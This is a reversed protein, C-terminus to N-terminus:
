VSISIPFSQRVIKVFSNGVNTQVNHSFPQDYWTTNRERNERGPTKSPQRQYELEHHDGSENLAEEATVTENIALPINKTVSPPHNSRTRVYVTTNNPRAHSTFTNRPPDLTVDLLNAVNLHADITIKLGNYRSITCLNKKIKEVNQPIADFAGLGEDRYLGINNEKILPM